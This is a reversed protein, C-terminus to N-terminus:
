RTALVWIIATVAVLTLAVVVWVWWRSAPPEPEPEPLPPPPAEVVPEPAVPTPHLEGGCRICHVAVPSNPETCHPCAVAATAAKGVTGPLRRLSAGSREGADYVVVSRAWFLPTDCGPCFDESRRQALDVSALTGCEPCTVVETTSRIGPARDDGASPGGGVTRPVPATPLRASGDPVAVATFPPPGDHRGARHDDLPSTM